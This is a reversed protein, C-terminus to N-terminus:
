FPATKWVGEVEICPRIKAHCFHNCRVAIVYMLGIGGLQIVDWTIVAQGQNAMCKTVQFVRQDPCLFAVFLEAQQLAHLGGAHATQQCQPRIQRLLNHQIHIAIEGGFHAEVRAQLGEKFAAQDHFIELVVFVLTADYLVRKFVICQLVVRTFNIADVVTCEVLPVRIDAFSDREEHVDFIQQQHDGRFNKGAFGIVFAFAYAM